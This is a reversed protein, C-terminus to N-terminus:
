WAHRGPHPRQLLYFALVDQPHQLVRVPDDPPRIPGRRAQTQAARRQQITHLLEADGALGLGGIHGAPAANKRSAVPVGPPQRRRVRLLCGHWFLANNTYVLRQRCGLLGDTLEITFSEGDLLDRDDAVIRVPFQLHLAVDGDRILGLLAHATVLQAVAMLVSTGLAAPGLGLYVTM